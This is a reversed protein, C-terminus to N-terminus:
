LGAEEKFGALKGELRKKVATKDIEQLSSDSQLKRIAEEMQKVALKLDGARAAALAYNEHMRYTAKGSAEITEYIKLAEATEGRNALAVAKAYGRATDSAADVNEDAIKDLQGEDLIEVQSSIDKGYDIKVQGDDNPRTDSRKGLVVWAAAAVALVVLITGVVLISWRKKANASYFIPKSLDPSSSDKASPPTHGGKGESKKKGWRRVM